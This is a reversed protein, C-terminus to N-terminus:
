RFLSRYFRRACVRSGLAENVLAHTAHCRESISVRHAATERGRRTPETCCPRLSRRSRDSPFDGPSASLRRWASPSDAPRASAYLYVRERITTPRSRYEEKKEGRLILEVWPQRISIARLIKEM